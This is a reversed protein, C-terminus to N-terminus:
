FFLFRIRGTGREPVCYEKPLVPGCSHSGIGRMAFDATFYTGDSPPLEDDHGAKTLTEASWGIASFSQMGEARVVIKGDTM